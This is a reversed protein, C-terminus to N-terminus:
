LPYEELTRFGRHNDPDGNESNMFYVIYTAVACGMQWLNCMSLSGDSKLRGVKKTHSRTPSRKTNHLASAVALHVLGLRGTM